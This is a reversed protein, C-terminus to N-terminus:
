QEYAWTSNKIGLIRRPLATLRERDDNSVIVNFDSYDVEVVESHGTTRAEVEFCIGRFSDAYHAWLQLNQFDKCFSCIRVNEKGRRIAEIYERKTETVYNFRGEM